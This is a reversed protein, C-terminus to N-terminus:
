KLKLYDLFTATNSSEDFFKSAFVYARHALSACKDPNEIIEQLFGALAEYDNVNFLYGTDLHHIAEPIGGVPTACVPVSLLMAEIISRPFGESYSPLVMCDSESLIETINEVWGIFRVSNILQMEEILQKLSLMYLDDVFLGPLILDVDYGNKKLIGVARIATHYGKDEVVRGANLLISFNNKTKKTKKTKLVDSVQICNPLYNVKQLVGYKYMNNISNKSHCYIIDVNKNIDRVFRKHMQNKNAEGRYYLIVKFTILVKVLKVFFLSKENNILIFDPKKEKIVKILNVIIKLFAPIQKILEIARKIKNDTYGINIKSANPHLVVFPLDYKEIEELHAECSGYVDIISADIKKDKLRKLLYLTGKTAGGIVTTFDFFIIKM